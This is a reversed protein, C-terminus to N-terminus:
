HRGARAKQNLHDCALVTVGQTHYMQNFKEKPMQLFSFVPKLVNNVRDSTKFM